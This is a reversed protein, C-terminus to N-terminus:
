RPVPQGCARAPDFQQVEAIRAAAGRDSRKHRLHQGRVAAQRRPWPHPRQEDGAASPIVYADAESNSWREDAANM